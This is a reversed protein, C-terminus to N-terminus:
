TKREHEQVRGFKPLRIKETQCLRFVAYILALSIGPGAFWAAAEVVARLTLVAVLAAAIVVVFKDIRNM